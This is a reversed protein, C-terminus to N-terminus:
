DKELKVINIKYVLFVFKLIGFKCGVIDVKLDKFRLRVANLIYFDDYVYVFVFTVNLDRVFGDFLGLGVAVLEPTLM